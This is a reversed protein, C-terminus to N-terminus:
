KFRCVGIAERIYQGLPKEIYKVGFGFDETVVEVQENIWKVTYKVWYRSTNMTFQYQDSGDVQKCIPNEINDGLRKLESVIVNCLKVETENM